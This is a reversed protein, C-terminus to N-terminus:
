FCLGRNRRETELNSLPLFLALSFLNRSAFVYSNAETERTQAHTRPEPEITSKKRRGRKGLPKFATNIIETHPSPISPYKLLSFDTIITLPPLSSCTAFHTTLCNHHSHPKQPQTKNELIQLSFIPTHRGM